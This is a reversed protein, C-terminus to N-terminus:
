KNKLKHRIFLILGSFFLGASFLIFIWGMLISVYISSNVLLFLIFYLIIGGFMMALYVGSTKKNEERIYEISEVYIEEIKEFEKSDFSQKAKYYAQDMKARWQSRSKKDYKINTAAEIFFNYIDAKSGSIDEAFIDKKKETKQVTKNAIVKEGCNGCFKEGAELKAGCKLCKAM